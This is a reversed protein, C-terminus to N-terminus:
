EYSVGDDHARNEEAAEKPTYMAFLPAYPPVVEVKAINNEKDVERVFVFQLPRPIKVNQHLVIVDGECLLDCANNFYGEPIVRDETRYHWMTFENAYSLVSLDKVNCKM